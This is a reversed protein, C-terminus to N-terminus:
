PMEKKFFCAAMDAVQHRDHRAMLVKVRSGGAMFVSFTGRM